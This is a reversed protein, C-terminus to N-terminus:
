SNQTCYDSGTQDVSPSPMLDLEATSFSEELQPASRVAGVLTESIFAEISEVSRKLARIDDPQLWDLPEANWGSKGISLPMGCVGSLGLAEGRLDVQGHIRRRDNALAATICQLTANATAQPTSHLGSFTILPEVFIRADPLARQAVAYAESIHGLSLLQKVKSRLAAVRAQLPSEASRARLEALCHAARLDDTMLEVSGWMPLMAEGHEGMVSARVDHRSIGLDTAIARAFRLSDQQAGMGIVLRRDGALSLIKVALEVPNSVVIFLAQPLRTVVQDAVREFIALNAAGLDRRTEKPSSATIGAAVIVIDAEVDGLDPVVEVRVREDDFADMLDARMSLLKGETALVGHGALLLQDAPELLGARLIHAALTGGVSGSAGLIAIRKPM